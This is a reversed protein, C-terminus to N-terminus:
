IRERIARAIKYQAVRGINRLLLVELEVLGNSVILGFDSQDCGVSSRLDDLSEDGLSGFFELRSTPQDELV